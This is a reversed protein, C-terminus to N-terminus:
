TLPLGHQRYPRAADAGEPYVIPIPRPGRGHVLIADTVFLLALLGLVRRSM